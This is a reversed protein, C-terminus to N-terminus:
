NDAITPVSFPEDGVTSILWDIISKSKAKVQGKQSVRDSGFRHCCQVQCGKFSYDRTYKWSNLLRYCWWTKSKVHARGGIGCTPREQLERWLRKVHKHKWHELAIKCETDCDYRETYLCIKVECVTTRNRWGMMQVVALLVDPETSGSGALEIVAGRWYWPGWAWLCVLGSFIYWNWMLM